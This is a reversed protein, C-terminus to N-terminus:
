GVEVGGEVPGVVRGIGREGDAEDGRGGFGVAPNGPGDVGCGGVHDASLGEDGEEMGVAGNDDLGGVDARVAGYAGGGDGDRDGIELGLGRIPDKPDEGSNLHGLVRGLNVLDPLSASGNRTPHGILM